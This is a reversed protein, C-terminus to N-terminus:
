SISSILASWEGIGVGRSLVVSYSYTGDTWVAVTFTTGDGKLVASVAGVAIQKAAPFTDCIGSNDDTGPSKRYAASQGDAGTYDIEAIEGFSSLYTTGTPEFPLATIDSVSFGIEKSLADASACEVIEQTGQLDGSPNQQPPHLLNPIALAGILLVAFCAAAALYRQRRAFRTSKAAPAMDASRINQLIRRRMEDTVVVKEMIERYREAM